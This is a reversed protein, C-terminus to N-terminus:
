PKVIRFTDGGHSRMDIHIWTKAFGGHELTTWGHKRLEKHHAQLIKRVEDPHVGRVNFDIARGFKHQSMSAGVSSNFPRLGRYQKNGGWAWNNIYVPQGVIERIVELGDPIRPDLFEKCRSGWTYLTSRPVVEHLMFYKNLRIQLLEKRTM